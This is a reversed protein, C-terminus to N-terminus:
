DITLVDTHIDREMQERLQELEDLAIERLDIDSGLFGKLAAEASLRRRKMPSAEELSKRKGQFFAAQLTQRGGSGQGQPTAPRRQNAGRQAGAGRSPAGGGRLRGPEPPARTAAPRPPQPLPKVAMLRRMCDDVLDQPLKHRERLLAHLPGAQVATEKLAAINVEKLSTSSFCARAAPYNWDDPVAYKKRDLNELIAEISRHEQMLKRATVIGVKSITTLYDCGALICFDVFEAQTFALAALLPQLQIDQVLPVQPSAAARHLNRLLRPTGFVLADFDETAAAQAHGAAALEACLAEAEGPAQVAPVGMFRLLEMAEDNHRPTTKVLRAVHRKVGEDDGAAKAEELQERSRARSQERQALAHAKKLEPAAGDFVFIPKFGLELLRVTRRLLGAIHSTDEASGPVAGAPTDGM